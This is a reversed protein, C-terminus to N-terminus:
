LFIMLIYFRVRGNDILVGKMPGTNACHTTVIEGSDLEVDALFRKYRKILIGERLPPFKIITNGIDIM